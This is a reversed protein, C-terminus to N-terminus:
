LGTIKYDDLARGLEAFSDNLKIHYFRVVSKKAEYNELTNLYMLVGQYIGRTMTNFHEEVDIMDESIFPSIKVDNLIYKSIHSFVQGSKSLEEKMNMLSKEYESKESIRYLTRATSRIKRLINDFIKQVIDHANKKITEIADMFIHDIINKTESLSKKLAKESCSYEAKGSQFKFEANIVKVVLLSFDLMSTEGTKMELRALPLEYSESDEMWEFRKPAHRKGNVIWQRKNEGFYLDNQKDNM